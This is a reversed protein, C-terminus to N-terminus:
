GRGGGGSEEDRSTGDEEERFRQVCEVVFRVVEEIVGETVKRRDQFLQHRGGEVGIFRGVGDCVVREVFGSSWEVDTRVDAQGHIVIVNKMKLEGKRLAKEVIRMGGLMAAATGTYLADGYGVHADQMSLQACRKCGFALQWTEGGIKEGPMVLRPWMKGLKLVIEVVLQPPLLEKKVKLAPGCLVYGEVEEVGRLGMFAATLGGSSEGLVFVPVGLEERLRRVVAELEEVHDELVYILGRKGMLRDSRGMSLGDLAVVHVGKDKLACAINDFWGAHWQLGPSIVLAAIPERAKWTLTFLSLNPHRKSAIYAPQANIAANPHLAPLLSRRLSVSASPVSRFTQTSHRTFPHTPRSLRLSLPSIFTPLKPGEEVGTSSHKSPM